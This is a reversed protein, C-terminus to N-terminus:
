TEGRRSQVLFQGVRGIARLARVTLDFAKRPARRAYFRLPAKIWAYRERACQVFSDPGKHPADPPLRRISDRDNKRKVAFYFLSQRPVIGKQSINEFFALEPNEVGPDITSVISKYFRDFNNYISCIDNVTGPKGFFFCDAVLPFKYFRRGRRHIESTHVLHVSTREYFSFYRDFDIFNLDEYPMIDPRTVVIYDYEQGTEKQHMNRLVNARNMSYTMFKLGRLSIQIDPHTGFHGDEDEFVGEQSEINLSKPAYLTEIRTRVSDDVALPDSRTSDKYWSQTTHETRDWTHIFVDSDYRNLLHKRLAPACQEFTRLHGYLQVAIRTM